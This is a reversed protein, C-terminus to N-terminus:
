RTEGDEDEGRDEVGDEDGVARELQRFRIAHHVWVGAFVVFASMVGWAASPAGAGIAVFLGVAGALSWLVHLRLLTRYTEVGGNRELLAQGGIALFAAGALRATFPDVCTWGLRELLFAPAALLPGAAAVSLIAHVLFWTRLTSPVEM